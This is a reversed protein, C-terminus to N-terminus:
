RTRLTAASYKSYLVQITCVKYQSKRAGHQLSIERMRRGESTGDQRFWRIKSALEDRGKVLTGLLVQMPTGCLHVMSDQM